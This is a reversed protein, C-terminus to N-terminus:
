WSLLLENEFGPSRKSLGILKGVVAVGSEDEVSRKFSPLGKAGITRKAVVRGEIVGIKAERKLIGIEFKALGELKM